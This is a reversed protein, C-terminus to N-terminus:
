SLQLKQRTAILMTETKAPNLVMNNSVCWENVDNLSSQLINSIETITKGSFHLTSEDTFMECTNENSIHLPMDNIFLSFLIPGLISGQPVGFPIQGESSFNDNLYVMQTRKELYSKFLLVTSKNRFYIKLKKLLINHDILDFAKKLDM